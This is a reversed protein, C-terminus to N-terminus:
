TRPDPCDVHIAIDKRIHMAFMMVEMTTVLYPLSVVVLM